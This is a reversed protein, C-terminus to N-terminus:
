FVSQGLVHKRLVATALCHSISVITTVEEQRKLVSLQLLLLVKSDIFCNMDM